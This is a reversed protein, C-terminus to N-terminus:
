HLLNRSDFNLVKSKTDYLTLVDIKHFLNCKKMYM